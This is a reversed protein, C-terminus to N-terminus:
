AQALVDSHQEWRAGVCGIWAQALVDASAVDAAHQSAQAREAFCPSRVLTTQDPSILGQQEAAEIM